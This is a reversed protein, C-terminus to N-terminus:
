QKPKLFDRFPTVFAEEFPKFNPTYNTPAPTFNAPPPATPAPAGGGSLFNFFGKGSAKKSAKETQEISDIYDIVERQEKVTLNDDQTVLARETEYDSVKKEIRFAIRSKYEEKAEIELKAKIADARVKVATRIKAPVNGIAIEGKAFSEAWSEIDNDEAQDQQLKDLKVKREKDVLPAVLDLATNLDTINSPVASGFEKRLDQIREIEKRKAESADKYSTVIDSFTQEVGPKIGGRILDVISGITGPTSTLGAGSIRAFNSEVRKRSAENLAERLAIRLNGLDGINKAANDQVPTQDLSGAPTETGAAPGAAPAAIKEPLNLLGGAIILDASKVATNGRNSNVLEAVSTGYQLALKSLTDGRKITVQPM